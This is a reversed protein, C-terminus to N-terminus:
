FNLYGGNVWRVLIDAYEKHTDEWAYHGSNLINFENNPLQEHLIEGNKLIALPDDKGWIIQVPTKIATLNLKPLDAPLKKLFLMTDWFRGDEYSALYDEKVDESLQYKTMNTLSGSIIAKSGIKKLDDLTPDMIMNTLFGAAQIPFVCAASGIIASKIKEPHYQAIFLAVSSGVDPGAVHMPGLDFFDIAKIVFESLTIPALLNERSQSKGFGPLDIAIVNFRSALEDWIPEFARISEPLPSLLLISESFNGVSSAYRIELNDITTTQLKNM